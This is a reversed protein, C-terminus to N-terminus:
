EKRALKWHYYFIPAAVILMALSQAIDRKQNDRQNKRDREERETKEEATCERPVMSGDPGPKMADCYPSMEYRYDNVGLVAKLGMNLLGIAAIVMIVLTILSVLYLYARKMWAM